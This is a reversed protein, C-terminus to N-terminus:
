TNVRAYLYKVGSIVLLVLIGSTGVDIIFVVGFLGVGSKIVELPSVVTAILAFVSAVFPIYSVNRDIGVKRNKYNVYICYYNFVLTYM